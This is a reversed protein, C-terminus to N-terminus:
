LIFCLAFWSSRSLHDGVGWNQLHWHFFQLIKLLVDILWDWTCFGCLSSRTVLVIDYM